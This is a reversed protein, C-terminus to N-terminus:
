LLWLFFPSLLVGAPANRPMGAGRVSDLWQGPGLGQEGGELGAGAPLTGPLPSVVNLLLVLGTPYPPPLSSCGPSSLLETSGSSGCCASSSSSPAAPLLQSCSPPCTAPAWCPPQSNAPCEQGPLFPPEASGVAQGSLHGFRTHLGARDECQGTGTHGAAVLDGAPGPRDRLM